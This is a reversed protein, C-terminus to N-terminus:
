KGVLKAAIEAVHKGQARAIALENASPMREGRPGTITAAGYPSGGTMESLTLLETTSYPVGTVLMGQHIFFTYLGLLTTEQGGHQSATSTFASALKGVLKNGFWLQGTADLLAQMSAPTGGFRTPTGLILADASAFDDPTAIPVHAFAKKAEVAYMKELVEKPLTEAAQFMKVEAGSVKGAGEAVAQALQYIHGYLSYFVIHIKAM